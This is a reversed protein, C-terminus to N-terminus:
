FINIVKIKQRWLNLKIYKFIKTFLELSDEYVCNTEKLLIKNSEIFAMKHM